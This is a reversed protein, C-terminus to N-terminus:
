ETLLLSWQYSYWGSASKAMDDHLHFDETHRLKVNISQDISDIEINEILTNDIHSKIYDSDADLHVERGFNLVLRRGYQKDVTVNPISYDQQAMEALHFTVVIRDSGM